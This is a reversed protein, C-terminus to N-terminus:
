RRKYFLFLLQLYIFENKYIYLHAKMFLPASCYHIFPTKYKPTKFCFPIFSFFFPKGTFTQTLLLLYIWKCFDELFLFLTLRPITSCFKENIYSLNSCQRWRKDALSHSAPKRFALQLTLNSCSSQVTCLIDYWVFEFTHKPVTHM